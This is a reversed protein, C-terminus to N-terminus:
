ITKVLTSDRVILLPDTLYASETKRNMLLDCVIKFLHESTSQENESLTTLQPTLALSFNENDFGIVALDDPIRLRHAAAYSYVGLALMDCTAFVASIAPDERMMKEMLQFSTQSCLELEPIEEMSLQIQPHRRVYDLAGDYRLRFSARTYKLQTALVGIHTHGCDEALHRVAEYGAKYGDSMVYPFRESPWNVRVVPCDPFHNLLAEEIMRSRQNVTIACEPQFACEQVQNGSLFVHVCVSFANLEDTLRKLTKAYFPTAITSLDALIVVNKHFYVNGVAKPNVRVCRGHEGTVLNWDRLQALIRKVTAPCVNFQESLRSISPLTDTYAGTKIEEAIKKAINLFPQMTLLVKRSLM